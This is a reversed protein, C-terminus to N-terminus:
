QLWLQGSVIGRNGPATRLDRPHADGRSLHQTVEAGNGSLSRKRQHFCQGVRVGGQSEVGGKGKSFDSCLRLQGHRRQSAPEVIRSFSDAHVGGNRQFFESRLRRSGNGRQNRRQFVRAPLHALPGGQGQSRDSLVLRAHNRRELFGEQVLM